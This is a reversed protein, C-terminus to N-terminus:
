GVFFLFVCLVLAGKMARASRKKMGRYAFVLIGYFFVASLLSIPIRLSAFPFSGIRVASENMMWLLFDLGKAFFVAGDKWFCSLTVTFLGWPLALNVLPTVLLNALLFYTPFSGFGYLIIPLTALQAATSAVALKWVWSSVPSSVRFFSLLPPSLFVLGAVAAYSLLFGWDYVLFPDVILLFLASVALSHGTGVKRGLCKGLAVFGFMCVARSVSASMGTLVAYALVWSFVILFRLYRQWTKEGMFSFLSVVLLAFISLHMGSVALVHVIGTDRYADQVPDQLKAGLVLAKAVEAERIGMGSGELFRELALRLAWTKKKVFDVLGRSEGSHIEWAGEKLFCQAYVARKALFSAYDFYEGDKGVFNRVPLLSGRFYVREGYEPLLTDASKPFYAYVKGGCEKWLSDSWVKEIELEMRWTRTREQPLHGVRACFIGDRDQRLYHKADWVPDRCELGLGAFLAM